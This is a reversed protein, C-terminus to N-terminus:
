EAAVILYSSSSGLYAIWAASGNDDSGAGRQMLPCELLRKECPENGIGDARRSQAIGTNGSVSAGIGRLM